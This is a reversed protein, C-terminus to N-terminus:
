VQQILGTTNRVFVGKNIFNRVRVTGGTQVVLDNTSRKSSCDILTMDAGYFNTNNGPGFDSSGITALSGFAVTGVCLTVCLNTDIVIPGYGASYEGNIRISLGNDHNSSANQEHLAPGGVTYNVGAAYAKHNIEVAIAGVTGGNHYNLTDLGSHCSLCNQLYSIGGESAICHNGGYRFDTNWAYLKPRASPSTATMYLNRNGGEIRLNEMYVSINGNVLNQVNCLLVAEQGATNPSRNTLMRVYLKLNVSDYWYSGPNAQVTAGSTQQTHQYYDGNEDVLTPDLVSLVPFGVPVPITYVNSFGPELTWTQAATNLGSRLIVDKKGSQSVIAVNRTISYGDSFYTGPALVIRGVDAKALAAKFTRLPANPLTGSNSDNGATSSNVYYTVGSEVGLSKWYDRVDFDTFAQGSIGNSWIRGPFFSLAAPIAVEQLLQRRDQIVPYTMNNIFAGDGLLPIANLGPVASALYYGTGPLRIKYRATPNTLLYTNVVNVAATLATTINSGATVGWWELPIVDGEVIRQWNGGNPASIFVADDDPTIGAAFYIFHGEGVGFLTTTRARLYVVEGNYRGSLSRLEALSNIHRIARGVRAAGASPNAYDSLEGRLSRDVQAVLLAEDDAWIGSLEVPFTAPLKVSYLNDDRQILQTPRDVTLLVGDVYDLPTPEFGQSALWEAVQQELGYLTRREVGLRDPATIRTRDTAWVDIIGANDYLDRPDSSGNTGVPNGTNYRM